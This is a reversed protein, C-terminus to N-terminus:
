MLQQIRFYRGGINMIVWVAKKLGMWLSVEVIVVEGPKIRDPDFELKEEV